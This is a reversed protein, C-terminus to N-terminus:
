TSHPPTSLRPYPSHTHLTASSSALFLILAMPSRRGELRPPRYFSVGAYYYYDDHPRFLPSSSLPPLPSPPPSPPCLDLNLLKSKIAEPARRDLNLGQVRRNASRSELHSYRQSISARLQPAGYLDKARPPNPSSTHPTAIAAQQLAPGFLM